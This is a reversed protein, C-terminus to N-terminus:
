KNNRKMVDVKHKIGDVLARVTAVRSLAISDTDQTLSSIELDNGTDEPLFSLKQDYYEMKSLVLGLVANIANYENDNEARFLTRYRKLSELSKSLEKLSDIGYKDLSVPEQVLTKIKDLYMGLAESIPENVILRDDMATVCQVSVLLAVMALSKLMKMGKEGKNHFNISDIVKLM